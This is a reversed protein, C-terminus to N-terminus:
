SATMRRAIETGATWRYGAAVMDSAAGQANLHSRYAITAASEKERTGDIFRGDVARLDVEENLVKRVFERHSEYKIPEPLTHPLLQAPDRKEIRMMLDMVHHLHGLEYDCFREWIEKLRPNSESQV